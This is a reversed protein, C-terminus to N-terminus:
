FKIKIKSTDDTGAEPPEVEYHKVEGYGLTAIKSVGKVTSDLVASEGQTIKGEEDATKTKTTEVADTVFGTTTGVTADKVGSVFNKAAEKPSPAEYKKTAAKEQREIERAEEDYQGKRAMGMQCLSLLLLALVTFRIKM